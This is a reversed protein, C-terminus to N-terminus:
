LSSAHVALYVRSICSCTLLPAHAHTLFAGLTARRHYCPPSACQSLRQLLKTEHFLEQRLTEKDAGERNTMLRKVAVRQGWLLARFVEAFAGEAISRGLKLDSTKLYNKTTEMLNM